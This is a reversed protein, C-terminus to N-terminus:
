YSYGYTLALSAFLVTFWANFLTKVLCHNVVILFLAFFLSWYNPSCSPPSNVFILSSRVFVGQNFFISPFPTLSQICIQTKVSRSQQRWWYLKHKPMQFKDSSNNRVFSFVKEVVCAKANKYCVYQNIPM